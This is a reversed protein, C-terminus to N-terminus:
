LWHKADAKFSRDITRGLRRYDAEQFYDEQRNGQGKDTIKTLDGVRRSNFFIGGIGHIIIIDIGIM